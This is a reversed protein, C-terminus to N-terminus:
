YLSHADTLSPCKENGLTQRRSVQRCEPFYPQDCSVTCPRDHCVSKPWSDLHADSELIDQVADSYSLSFVM